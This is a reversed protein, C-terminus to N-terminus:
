RTGFGFRRFIAKGEVSLLFRAFGQADPNRAAKLVAIPYTIPAHSAPPFRGVVRVRPEALADTLYVIGFPAEGRAVLALAARVNEASAIRGSVQPWVGLRTLAQRAYIGAPVSGPDALALRRSGLAKALAFGPEIRLAARSSSPVILVLDNTVLTARTAMRLLGRRALDDMWQEDASIFVDAPAGAQVQRALASSAAFAMVPRAHGHAAWRDGAATVSEQLSAAALVLPGSAATALSFFALTAVALLAALSRAVIMPPKM